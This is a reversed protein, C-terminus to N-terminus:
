KEQQVFGGAVRQFILLAGIGVVLHVAVIYWVTQPSGADAYHGYITTYIVGSFAGVGTALFNSGMYLGAKEKPAIYTIYEQMRPSSIMEGVAFLAIGLFVLTPTVVHALGLVVFGAAM